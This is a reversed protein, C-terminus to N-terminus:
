NCTFGKHFYFNGNATSDLNAYTIHYGVRDGVAVSATDPDTCQSQGATLTCSMSTDVENVMVTMTATESGVMLRPSGDLKTATVVLGAATCSSPFLNGAGIPSGSFSTGLLSQYQTANGNVNAFSGPSTIAITSSGGGPVLSLDRAIDFGFYPPTSTPTPATGGAHLGGFADLVYYGAGGPLVEIAEAADFGFYPTAPNIVSAGNVAHIGGFGDLVYGEQAFAPAGFLLMALAPLTSISLRLLTRTM